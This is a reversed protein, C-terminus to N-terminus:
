RTIIYLDSNQVISIVGQSIKFVLDYYKIGKVTESLGVDSLTVSSAISSMLKKFEAIEITKEEWSNTEKILIQIPKDQISLLNKIILRVFRSQLALDITSAMNNETFKYALQNFGDLDSSDLELENNDNIEFSLITTSSQYYGIRSVILSLMTSYQNEIFSYTLKNSSELKNGVKRLECKLKNMTANKSEQPSDALLSDIIKYGDSM